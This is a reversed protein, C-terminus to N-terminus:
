HDNRIRHVFKFCYFLSRNQSLCWSYCVESLYKSLIYVATQSCPEIGSQIEVISECHRLGSSRCNQGIDRDDLVIGTLGQGDRSFARFSVGTALIGGSEVCV